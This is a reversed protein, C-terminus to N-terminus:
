YKISYRYFHYKSCLFNLFCDFGPATSVQTSQCYAARMTAQGACIEPVRSLVLFICVLEDKFSIVDSTKEPRKQHIHSLYTLILIRSYFKYFFITYALLLVKAFFLRWLSDVLLFVFCHIVDAV